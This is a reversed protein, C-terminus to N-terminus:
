KEELFQRAGEMRAELQQSKEDSSYVSIIAADLGEDFGVFHGQGDTLEDVNDNALGLSFIIAASTFYFLSPYTLSKNFM